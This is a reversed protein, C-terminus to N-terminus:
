CEFVSNPTAPTALPSHSEPLWLALAVTQEPTAARPLPKQDAKLLPANLWTGARAYVFHKQGDRTRAGIVTAAFAGDGAPLYVRTETGVHPVVVAVDAALFALGAEFLIARLVLANPHHRARAIFTLLFNVVGFILLLLLHWLTLINL